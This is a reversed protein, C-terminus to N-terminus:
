LTSGQLSHNMPLKQAQQLLDLERQQVWLWLQWLQKNTPDTQLAQFVQTSAQRLESLGQELGTSVSRIQWVKPTSIPEFAQVQAQHMAAIEFILNQLTQHHSTTSGQATLVASPAAPSVQPQYARKESELAPYLSDRYPYSLCLGLLVMAAIAWQPQRKRPSPPADAELAMPKDMQREIRQWLDNKPAIAKTSQAILQNLEDERSRPTQTM